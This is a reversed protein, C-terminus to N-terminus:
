LPPQTAVGLLFFVVIAIKRGDNKSMIWWKVGSDACDGVLPAAPFKSTSKCIAIHLCDSEKEEQLCFSSLFESARWWESSLSVIKGFTITWVVKNSLFYKPITQRNTVNFDYKYKLSMKFICTNNIRHPNIIITLFLCIFTYFDNNYVGRM